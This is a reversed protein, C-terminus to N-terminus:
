EVEPDYHHDCEDFMPCSFCCMGANDCDAPDALLFDYEGVLVLLM